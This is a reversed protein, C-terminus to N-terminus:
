EMSEKLAVKELMFVQHFLWFFLNRHDAHKILPRMLLLLRLNFKIILRLNGKCRFYKPFLNCLQNICIFVLYILVVQQEQELYILIMLPNLVATIPKIQLLLEQVKVDWVVLGVVDNLDADFGGFIGKDWIKARGPGEGGFAWFEPNLRQGVEAVDLVLVLTFRVNFLSKCVNTLVVDQRWCDDELNQSFFVTEPESHEFSEEFQLQGLLYAGDLLLLLFHMLCPVLDCFVLFFEDLHFCSRQRKVFVFTWLTLLGQNKRGDVEHTAMGEVLGTDVFITDSPAVFAVWTLIM